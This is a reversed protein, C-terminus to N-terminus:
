TLRRADGDTEYPLGGGPKHGCTLSFFFLFSISSLFLHNVRSFSITRTQKRHVEIPKHPKLEVAGRSRTAISNRTREDDEEANM